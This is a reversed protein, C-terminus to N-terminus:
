PRLFELAYEYKKMLRQRTREDSINALREVSGNHLVDAVKVALAVPDSAVRVYYDTRPEHPRHTLLDVIHVLRDPFGAERLTESTVDTDEVTDHLWAAAVALARDPGELRQFEEVEPLSAAVAEPHLIYPLGGKDVQGRHAAEALVAASSVLDEVVGERFRVATYCSAACRDVHSAAGSM